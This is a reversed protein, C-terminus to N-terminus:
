PDNRREPQLADPSAPSKIRRLAERALDAISEEEWDPKGDDDLLSTLLAIDGEGLLPALAQMAYFRTHVFDDSLAQQLQPRAAQPDLQHLAKLAALRVFSDGDEALARVLDPCGDRNGLEGLAEAAAERLAKHPSHLLPALLTASGGANLQTLARVVAIQVIWNPDDILRNLHPIAAADQFWALAEAVAWRVPWNEDDLAACLLQLIRPNPTGRLHRAFKRLFKAAQQTRGWDDDRLLQLTTQIKDEDNYAQSTPQAAPGPELASEAGPDGTPSHQRGPSDATISAIADRALQGITEARYPPRREDDLLESLSAVAPQFKAARLIEIAAAATLASQSDLLDAIDDLDLEPMSMALEAAANVIEPDDDSLAAVIAKRAPLHAAYCALHEYAALRLLKERDSTLDLLLPLADEAPLEPLEELASHRQQWDDSRLRERLDNQQDQPQAPAEAKARPDDDYLPNGYLLAALKSGAVVTSEPPHHLVHQADAMLQQFAERPPLQSITAALSDRLQAADARSSLARGVGEPLDIAAAAMGALAIALELEDHDVVFDYFAPALTLEGQYALRLLRSSVLRGRVGMAALVAEAHTPHDQSWRLLRALIESYAYKLLSLVIEGRDDREDSELYDLLLIASPLYKIEGLMWIANSRIGADANQSLKVLYAVLLSLPYGAFQDIVPQSSQREIGAVAEVFDLPLEFPLALLERWLWLQVTHDCRNMHSAIVEAIIGRQPLQGFCDRLAPRAARERDGLGILASIVGEHAASFLGPHRRLSDSSLLPDLEALRKILQSRSKEDARDVLLLAPGDWKGTHRRGDASFRPPSLQQFIDDANARDLVLHWQFIRSSFRLVDGLDTLIGLQIARDFLEADPASQLADERGIRCHNEQQMMSGALDRLCDLLREADSAAYPAPLLNMRAKILMPLPNGRWHSLALAPEMMLLETGIALDDLSRSEIQAQHRRLLGRFATLQELNLFGSVFQLALQPRPSPLELRPLDPFLASGQEALLAFRQRPNESIWQSLQRALTPHRRELDGFNDLLFLARNGALWHRWYSVLGWEREIFDDLTQREGDWKMLDLWIPLPADEDRLAQHACALALLQAFVTKGSGAAGTLAFSDEAAAWRQLDDIAQPDGGRHCAFSWDQLPHAAYGRARGGAAAQNPQSAMVGWATPLKALSLEAREIFRYLYDLRDGVQPLADSQPFQSLLKEVSPDNPDDFHRGDIWDAFDFEAMSDTSFDRAIVAIVPMGRGRLQRYEARCADSQLYSDSVIAIAASAKSQARQLRDDWDEVLSIAFRDLWVNRYARM